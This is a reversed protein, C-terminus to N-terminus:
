GNYLQIKFAANEWNSDLSYASIMICTFFGSLLHSMLCFGHKDVTVIIITIIIM